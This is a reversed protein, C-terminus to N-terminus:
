LNYMNLLYERYAVSNTIATRIQLQFIDYINSWLKECLVLFRLEIFLLPFSNGRITELSNKLNLYYETQKINTSQVFHHLSPQCRLLECEIQGLLQNRTEQFSSTLTVSCCFTLDFEILLSKLFTMKFTYKENIKLNRKLGFQTVPSCFNTITSNKRIQYM